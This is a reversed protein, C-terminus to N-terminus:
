LSKWHAVESKRFIGVRHNWVRWVRLMSSATIGYYEAAREITLFHNVYGLYMDYTQVQNIPHRM